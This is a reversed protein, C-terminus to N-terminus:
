QLQFVEIDKPIFRIEGNLQGKKLGYQKSDRWNAWGEVDCNEAYEHEFYLANGVRGFSLYGSAYHQIADEGNNQVPFIEAKLLGNLRVRYIFASPDDEYITDNFPLRSKALNVSTYGGFVNNQESHTVCIVNKKNDCKSYFEDRKFGDRSARFLLVWESHYKNNLQKNVMDYLIMQENDTLIQTDIIASFYLLCLDQVLQVITFYPNDCPFISQIDKIWGYVIDKYRQPIKKVKQFSITAM